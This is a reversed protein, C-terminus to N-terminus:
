LLLVAAFVIVIKKKKKKSTSYLRKPYVRADCENACESVLGKTKRKKKRIREKTHTKPFLCFRVVLPLPPPPESRLFRITKM